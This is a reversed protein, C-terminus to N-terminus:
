PILEMLERESDLDAKTPYTKELADFRKLCEGAAKEDGKVAKAVAYEARIVSPYNRMAKRFQQMEKTEFAATDAESGRELADIFTRDLTLFSKYLGILATEPDEMADILSKAEAFDHRDMARNERLSLQSVIMPNTLDADEALDFLAPDMDHLRIGDLQLLENVKLQVWFARLAEPDKGLHLANYGDNPLMKLTMPVGNTIATYVNLAICLVCFVAWPGIRGSILFLVTFLVAAILNMLAGGFNYLMYPFTGNVPEPPSMLCQGGTGALSFRKWAFGEKTKVLMLSFVRFSRFRYGTLLGFVLHGSEHIVIGLIWAVFILLLYAVYRLMFTGFGTEATEYPEIGLFIIAYGAAVGAALGLVIAVITGIPNKRNRKAGKDM